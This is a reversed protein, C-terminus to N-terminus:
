GVADGARVACQGDGAVPAAVRSRERREGCGSRWAAQRKRGRGVGGTLVVQVGEGRGRVARGVGSSPGDVRGGADVETLDQMVDVALPRDVRGGVRTGAGVAEGPDGPNGTPSHPRNANGAVLCVVGGEDGVVALWALAGSNARM